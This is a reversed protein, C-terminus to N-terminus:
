WRSFDAKLLFTVTQSNRNLIASLTCAEFFFVFPDFRAAATGSKSSHSLLWSRKAASQLYFGVSRSGHDHRSKFHRLSSYPPFHNQKLSDSRFEACIVHDM